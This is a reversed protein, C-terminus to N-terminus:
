GRTRLARALQHRSNAVFAPAGVSRSATLAAEVDQLGYHGTVMSDLDV